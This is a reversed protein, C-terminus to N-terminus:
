SGAGFRRDYDAVAHAANDRCLPRCATRFTDRRKHVYRCEQWLVTLTKEVQCLKWLSGAVLDLGIDCDFSVRGDGDHRGRDLEQEAEVAALEVHEDLGALVVRVGGRDQQRHSQDELRGCGIAGNAIGTEM